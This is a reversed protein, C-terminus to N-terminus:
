NLFIDNENLLAWPQWITLPAKPTVKINDEPAGTANHSLSDRATKRPLMSDSYFRKDNQIDNIM